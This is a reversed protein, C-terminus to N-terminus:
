VALPPLILPAFGNIKRARGTMLSM